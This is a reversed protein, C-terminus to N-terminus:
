QTEDAAKINIVESEQSGRSNSIRNNNLSNGENRGVSMPTAKMTMTRKNADLKQYKKDNKQTKARKKPDQKEEKKQINDGFCLRLQKNIRNLKEPVDKSYLIQDM